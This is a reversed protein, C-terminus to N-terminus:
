KEPKIMIAPSSWRLGFGRVTEACDALEPSINKLRRRFEYLNVTFRGERKDPHFDENPYFAAHVDSYSIARESVQLLRVMLRTQAPCLNGIIKGQSRFEGNPYEFTLNPFEKIGKVTFTCDLCEGPKKEPLFVAVQTQLSNVQQQLRRVDARLM